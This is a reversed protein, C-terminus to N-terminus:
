KPESGPSAPERADMLADMFERAQQEDKEPRSKRCAFAMLTRRGTANRYLQLHRSM